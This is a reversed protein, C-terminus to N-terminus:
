RNKKRREELIMDIMKTRLQAAQSQKERLQQELMEVQEEVETNKYYQSGLHANPEKLNPDPEEPSPTTHLTLTRQIPAKRLENIEKQLNRIQEQLLAVVKELEEYQSKFSPNRAKYGNAEEDLEKTIIPSKEDEQQQNKAQKAHVSDNSRADQSAAAQPKNPMTISTHSLIKSLM